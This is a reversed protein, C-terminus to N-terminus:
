KKAVAYLWFGFIGQRSELYFSLKRFGKYLYEGIFPFYRPWCGFFEEGPMIGCESIAFGSAEITKRLAMQSYSKEYGVRWM